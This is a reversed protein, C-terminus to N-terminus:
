NVAEFYSSTLGELLLFSEIKIRILEADPDEAFNKLHPHRQVLRALILEREHPENMKKFVGNVTLAKANSRRLGLDEERTDILLSVVPNETLNRFKKTQRHTVMYIEHCQEDTAYVMLSCHPRNDSVTALVCIDKAKLLATMKDLMANM